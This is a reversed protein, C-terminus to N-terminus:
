KSMATKRGAALVGKYAAVAMKKVRPGFKGALAARRKGPPIPQGEPVGLVQHLAGERFSIPKKGKEKITVVPLKKAM